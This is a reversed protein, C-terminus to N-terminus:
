VAVPIGPSMTSCLTVSKIYNGKVGTPKAGRIADVVVPM